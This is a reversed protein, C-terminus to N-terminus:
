HSWKHRVTVGQARSRDTRQRPQHTTPGGQTLLEASDFDVYIQLDVAPRERAMSAIEERETLTLSRGGRHRLNDILVRHDADPPAARTFGRAEQHPTLADLIEQQSLDRAFTPAGSFMWALCGTLAIRTFSHGLHGM